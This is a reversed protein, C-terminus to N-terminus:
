EIVRKKKIWDIVVDRQLPGKKDFVFGSVGLQAPASQNAATFDSTALTYDRDPDVTRGKTVTAPLDRGKFKGIVIYNDFPLINWINRALIQGQPLVERINGRNVFAFDSGTEERMANEVLLILDPGTLRRKSEGIPVDVIKSVKSEWESVLREVDPAAPFRKDIPIRKWDSSVVKHLKIDIRLDLRDLEVGYARAEVAVRGEFEKLSSYGTHVHGAILIPIEPASHLIEDAEHDEVHALLVIVDVQNMLGAAIRRVTEVVPLAHCLGMTEKTEYVGVLNGMVAGIIGVKLGDVTKIVYPPAVTKATGDVVNASVIPFRAIKLFTPISDCGYDFDHNGLTSVDMGLLNAIEYIPAGRFFTSVPTGQVLDGANLYLCPSCHERERRLATALRAFGGLGQDNPLLHAHLDNTHLITLPRVDDEAALAVAAILCLPLIRLRARMLSM